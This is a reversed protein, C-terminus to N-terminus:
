GGSAQDVLRECGVIVPLPFAAIGERNGQRVRGVIHRGRSWDRESDSADVTKTGGLIGDDAHIRRATEIGGFCGAAGRAATTVYFLVGAQTSVVTSLLPDGAGKSKAKFHCGSTTRPCDPPRRRHGCGLPMAAAVEHV